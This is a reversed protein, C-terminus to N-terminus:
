LAHCGTTTTNTDRFMLQALRPLDTSLSSQRKYVDLHTYSVPHMVVFESLDRSRYRQGYEQETIQM